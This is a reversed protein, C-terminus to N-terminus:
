EADPPKDDRPAPDGSFPEPLSGDIGYIIFYADPDTDPKLVPAKNKESRM